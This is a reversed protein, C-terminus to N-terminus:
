PLFEAPRMAWKWVPTVQIRKGGTLITDESNRTIILGQDQKFFDMAALLGRVEREENDPSLERTVQICLPKTGQTEAQAVCAGVVFDCEADRHSFYFIDQTHSRLTNFVFNELLAGYNGSFSISGTKIIGPDVIYVKKPALSQAKVSWAFCPVQHILYASELYSFYELMTTASKAGGLIKLRSPTTLQAPNSLLYAFLRELSLVDRIGYRVAIDRYLIDSWLQSLVEDNNTKLYEPFGGKELYADLSNPGAPTQTFGCFERYSFPFLEKTIHRGTLISGLERSLLSANSGTLLVRYGEDLKQRIYLEWHPAEQIEDFFLLKATSKTIVEDLLAFDATEFGLLRLDDFNFYFFPQDEQQVFQHLLTSKGCRRIGSIVLAHNELQPLAPLADRPYGSDKADLAAKQSSAIDRIESLKM